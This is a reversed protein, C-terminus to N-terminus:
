SSKISWIKEYAIKAMEEQRENIEQEGWHSGHNKIFEVLKQNIPLNSQIYEKIKQEIVYNQAKSNLRKGILTLNGLKNVYSKIQRKKLNWGAEPSRPLIHEINVANFDIKVEDTHSYFDNFKSLIYKVLNRSIENDKYSFEFFSERFLNFSPMLEVLEKEFNSFVRQIQPHIKKPSEKTVIHEIEIAYKSYIKEVRNTPQKCIVSYQFTFKEILEFIGVPDFSIREYNRLISLLLVYCQSVDMFRLSKVANFIRTSHKLDQFDSEEGVILRKFWEADTQLDWLFKKWDTIQKKIERFLKKESLFSYRSIWFYRIFKKLDMDTAEINSSIEQWIEKATDGDKGPKIKKFILNKLLDAVSLEVGRANTTEFIEYADDEDSVEVSIVILNAIKERIKKLFNLKEEKSDIIGLKEELKTYFFRYVQEVKKEETTKASFKKGNNEEQIFTKYFNELTEAPLIRFSQNGDRDEIAIDQRQILSSFKDDLSKAIDRLAALLITITLLRQQGDIVDVFKDEKESELNFIFTGLFYTEDENNNLDEWLQAAQDIDWSYPRQYRPVRFRRSTFLIDKLLFDQAEFRFEM